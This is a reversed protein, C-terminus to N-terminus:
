FLIDPDANMQLVDSSVLGQLVDTDKTAAREAMAKEEKARDQKKAQVKKLRFFEERELEDLEGKIYAITNEIKPTIVNELANVRRNTTKIAEDLTLFSSQLTALDILLKIARAYASRCNSLQKGGGSLGTLVGEGEGSEKKGEGGGGASEGTSFNPIKVGAINDVGAHVRVSANSVGDQITYKVNEGAVYYAQTLAFSAARMTEGMEEKTEM